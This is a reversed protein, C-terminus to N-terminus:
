GTRFSFVKSWPGTNGEEDTARVRWYYTPKPNLWGAPAQFFTQGRVNRDFASVLPWACDPRLSLQFRYCAIRDGDADSAATWEFRPALEKIVAGDKPSLAEAPAAPRPASAIVM